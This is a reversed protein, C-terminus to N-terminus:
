EPGNRPAPVHPRLTSILLIKSLSRESEAEVRVITDLDVADRRFAFSWRRQSGATGEGPLFGASTEGLLLRVAPPREDADGVAWGEISVVGDRIESGDMAGWPYRALELPPLPPAPPRVLVYLDQFGTMGFPFGLLVAGPAVRGAVGRVFEASVYSTGYESGDLRTTESVPRFVIGTVRDVELGPLLGMGHVSFVLIGAPALRGYLAALWSEFREAPLHSFFSVALIAEFANVGRFSAPESGTVVARVGFTEQQFRAAAPDIETVVIREPALASRLFRTTRGFGSAFDLLSGVRQPSGFRWDLIRAVTRFIQEGTAFYHVAATDPSQWPHELHYRYMEDAPHILTPFPGTREALRQVFAAVHGSDCPDFSPGASM